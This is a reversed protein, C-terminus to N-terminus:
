LLSSGAEHRQGVTAAQIWYLYRDGAFFPHVYGGPLPRGARDTPNEAVRTLGSARDWVYLAWSNQAAEGVSSQYMVAVQRASAADAALGMGAAGHITGLSGLTRAGRGRVDLQTATGSQGGVLVGAYGPVPTGSISPLTAGQWLAAAALAHRWS